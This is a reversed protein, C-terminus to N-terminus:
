SCPKLSASFRSSRRPTGDARDGLYFEYDVRCSDLDFQNHWLTRGRNENWSDQAEDQRVSELLDWLDEKSLSKGVLGDLLVRSRRLTDNFGPNDQVDDPVVTSGQRFLLFNTVCLRGSEQMVAHEVNHMEREWVFSESRDAVLYHAVAWEEYQKTSYLVELAERASSCRELLYRPIQTENLGAQPTGSPQRASPEDDALLAVMLGHENMGDVCGFLDGITTAIVAPGNEPHTEIVYPRGFVPPEGAVPPRGFLESITRTTFDLNRGVRTHGDSALDSACWVASCEPGRPEAYVYSFDLGDDGIQAGFFAAVGLMRAYQEPWHQEFWRRRARNRLPDQSPFPEWRSERRAVEALRNGIDAQSGELVLHHVTMFDEPGGAVVRQQSGSASPTKM